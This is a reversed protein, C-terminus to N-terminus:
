PVKVFISDLLMAYMDVRTIGCKLGEQLDFETYRRSVRVNRANSRIPLMEGNHHILETCLVQIVM